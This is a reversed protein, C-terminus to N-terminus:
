CPEAMRPNSELLALLIRTGAVCADSRSPVVQISPAPEDGPLVYGSTPLSWPSVKTGGEAELTPLTLANYTAEVLRAM